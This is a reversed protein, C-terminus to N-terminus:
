FSDPLNVYFANSHDVWQRPHSQLAKQAFDNQVLNIQEFNVGYLALRARRM